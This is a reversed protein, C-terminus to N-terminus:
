IKNKFCSILKLHYIHLCEIVSKLLDCQQSVITYSFNLAKCSIFDPYDFDEM